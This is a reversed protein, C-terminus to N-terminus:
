GVYLIESNRYLEFTRWYGDNADAGSTIFHAPVPLTAASAATGLM